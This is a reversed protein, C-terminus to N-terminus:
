RKQYVARFHRVERGNRKVMFDEFSLEDLGHSKMASLESRLLPWPPPNLPEDEHRARGLLFLKGQSRLCAALAGFAAARHPDRLTQLTYTENVFDFAGSWAPPLELLNAAQWSIALDAFRDRAWEVAKESIDFATVEFGHGALLAANDGLGCGVDLARGHKQDAPENDLWNSLDARAERHGWPILAPDGDAARYLADFWGLPKGEETAQARLTDALRKGEARRVAFDQGSGEDTDQESVVEKGM